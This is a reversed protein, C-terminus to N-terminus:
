LIEQDPKIEWLIGDGAKLERIIDANFLRDGLLGIDLVGAGKRLEETYLDAAVGKVLNAVSVERGSKKLAAALREEIPTAPSRRPPDILQVVTTDSQESSESSRQSMSGAFFKRMNWGSTQLRTM